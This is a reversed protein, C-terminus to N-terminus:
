YRIVWDGKCGFKNPIWTHSQTECQTFIRFDLVMYPPLDM